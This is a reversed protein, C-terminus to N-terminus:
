KKLFSTFMGESAPPADASATEELTAVEGSGVSEAKKKAVAEKLKVGMTTDFGLSKLQDISATAEERADKRVHWEGCARVKLEAYGNPVGMALLQEAPTGHPNPKTPEANGEGGHVYADKGKVQFREFDQSGEKRVLVLHGANPKRTLICFFNETSRNYKADIKEVAARVAPPLSKEKQHGHHSM